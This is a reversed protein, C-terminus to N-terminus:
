VLSGEAAVLGLLHGPADRLTPPCGPVDAPTQHHSVDTSVWPSEAGRDRQGTTVRKSNHGWFLLERLQLGSSEAKHAGGGPSRGIGGRVLWTGVLLGGGGEVTKVM